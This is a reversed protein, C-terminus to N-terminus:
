ERGPQRDDDGVRIGEVGIQLPYRGFTQDLDIVAVDPPGVPLSIVFGKFVAKVANENIM